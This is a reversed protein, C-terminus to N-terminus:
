WTIDNMVSSNKDFLTKHVQSFCLPLLENCYDVIYRKLSELNCTNITIKNQYDCIAFELDSLDKTSISWKRRKM